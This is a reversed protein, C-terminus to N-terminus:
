FHTKSQYSFHTISIHTELQTNSTTAFNSKTPNKKKHMKKLTSKTQLKQIIQKTVIMHNNWEPQM